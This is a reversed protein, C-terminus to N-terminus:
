ENDIDNEINQLIGIAQDFDDDIIMVRRPIASISGEIISAHTDFVLPDIGESKLRTELTMLLVPDNTRILEKM